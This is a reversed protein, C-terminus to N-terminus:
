EYKIKRTKLKAIKAITFLIAIFNFGRSYFDERFKCVRFQIGHYSIQIVFFKIFMILLSTYVKHISMFLLTNVPLSWKADQWTHDIFTIQLSKM